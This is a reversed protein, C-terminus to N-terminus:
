SELLADQIRRRETIDRSIKAFGIVEGTDDRIADLVTMALFRSGDKRVRWGEDDSHGTRRAIEIARTPKGQRRDEEPFFMSFHQGIVEDRRYGQIREAGPNWSVISGDLDLMYIAYDTVADILMRFRREDLQSSRAAHQPPTTTSM